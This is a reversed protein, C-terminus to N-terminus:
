PLIKRLQEYHDRYIAKAPDLAVAQAAADRAEKVQGSAYLAWGLLDYHAATPDSEVLRRSLQLAEPLNGRRGLYFRALNNLAEPQNPELQLARKLQEV